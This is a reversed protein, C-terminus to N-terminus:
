VILPYTNITIYVRHYSVTSGSNQFIQCRINEGPDLYTTGTITVADLASVDQVGLVWVNNAVIRLATVGFGNAVRQCSFSISVLIGQGTQNQFGTAQDIWSLNGVGKQRAVFIAAIDSWVSDGVATNASANYIQNSGGIKPIINRSADLALTRSPVMLSPSLTTPNSGSVTQFIHQNGYYTMIGPQGLIRTYFDTGNTSFDLVGGTMPNGNLQISAFGGADIGMCVGNGASTTNLLGFVRGYGTTVTNGTMTIDGNYVQTISTSSNYIGWQSSSATAATFTLFASNATNLSKGFGCFLTSNLDMNPALVSSTFLPNTNTNVVSFPASTLSSASMTVITKSNLNINSAATTLTIDSNRNQQISTSSTYISWQSTSVTASTFDIFASNNASLSKGFGLYMKENANMNPALFSGTFLPTVSTNLYTFASATNSSSSGSGTLNGTIGNIILRDTFDSQGTPSVNVSSLSIDGGGSIPCFIRTRYRALTANYGLDMGYLFGGSNFILVGPNIATISSLNTSNVTATNVVSLSNANLTTFAGTNPVASGITGPNAWDTAASPGTIHLDWQGNASSNNICIASGLNLPPVTGITGSTHRNIITPNNTNNNVTYVYGVILTTADPLTITSGSGGRILINGPSSATLTLNGSNIIEIGGIINQNTFINGNIVNLSGTIETNGNMSILGSTGNIIFRDTFNSQSTPSSTHTSLAIDNAAPSFIRTRFRATTANYGLDMGYMDTSTKYVTVSPNLSTTSSLNGSNALVNGSASVFGGITTNNNLAITGTSNLSISLANLQFGLTTITWAGTIGTVAGCAFTLISPIPVTSGTGIYIIPAGITVASGYLNVAGVNAGINIAGATATTISIIGAVATTLNINGAGTTLSIAGAGTTLNMSGAITTLNTSGAGTTLNFIGGATSINVAGSISTPDALTIAGGATAMSITGFGSNTFSIGGGGNLVQFVGSSGTSNYTFNASTNTMTLNSTGAGSDFLQLVTSTTTGLFLGATAAASTRIFGRGTSGISSELGFNLTPNGTFGTGTITAPNTLVASQYILATGGPNVSLVQNPSGLTALGTGGSTIPVPNTATFNNVTLNDVFANDFTVNGIDTNGLVTLDGKLLTNKNVILSNAVVDFANTTSKGSLNSSNTTFSM